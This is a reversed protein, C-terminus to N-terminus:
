LATRTRHYKDFVEAACIVSAVAHKIVKKASSRALLYAGARPYNEGFVAVDQGIGVDDISCLGQFHDMLLLGVLGLQHTCVFIGVDGDQFYLCLIQGFDLQSRTSGELDPFPHKSHAIGEVESGGHRCTDDRGLLPLDIDQATIKGQFTKDM